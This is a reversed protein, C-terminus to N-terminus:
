LSNPVKVESMLQKIYKYCSKDKCSSIDKGVTEMIKLLQDDGDVLNVDEDNEDADKKYPSIPFCSSGCFLVKRKQNYRPDSVRLLEAFTCGVGWVDIAHDYDQLLIVEPARYWRTQIQQSLNSRKPKMPEVECTQELNPLENLALSRAM